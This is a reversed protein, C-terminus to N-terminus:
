RGTGPMHVSIPGEDALRDRDARYLAEYRLWADAPIGAVRELRLATDPSIPARGNIIENVLKRSVGLLDAVHQQSHGHEDIWEDLYAGPPVAYNTTSM